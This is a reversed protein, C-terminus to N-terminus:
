PGKKEIYLSMRIMKKSRLTREIPNGIEFGRESKTKTGKLIKPM